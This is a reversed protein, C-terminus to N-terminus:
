LTLCPFFVFLFLVVSESNILNKTHLNYICMYFCLATKTKQLYSIISGCHPFTLM